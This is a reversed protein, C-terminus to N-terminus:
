LGAVFKVLSLLLSPDLGFVFMLPVTILLVFVIIAITALVNACKDTFKEKFKTKIQYLWGDTPDPKTKALTMGKNPNFKKRPKESKPM